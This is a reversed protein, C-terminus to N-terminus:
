RVLRLGEVAGTSVATVVLGATVVGIAISAWAKGRPLGLLWALLTGAYAGTGPLPVAVFLALGLIKYRQVYPTGQRRVREMRRAIWGIRSLFRHYCLDLTIWGPIIVLLNTLTCLLFTQLPPHGQALAVPIAGRLEVWPVLSLTAIWWLSM